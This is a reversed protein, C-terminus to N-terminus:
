WGPPLALLHALGADFDDDGFENPDSNPYASDLIRARLGTRGLDLDDWTYRALYIPLAPDPSPCHYKEMIKRLAASPKMGDVLVWQKFDPLIEDPLDIMGKVGANSM